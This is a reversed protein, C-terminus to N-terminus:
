IYINFTIIWLYLDYNCHNRSYLRFSKMKMKIEDQAEM